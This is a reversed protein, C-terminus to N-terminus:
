PSPAYSRFKASGALLSRLSPGVITNEGEEIDSRLRQFFLLRDASKM